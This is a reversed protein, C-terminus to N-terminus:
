NPDVKIRAEFKRYGSFEIVNRTYTKKSDLGLLVEARVPLLYREGGIKIWDYEVANESLSVPFGAPIEDHSVEIRLTRASETDIWVTGSSGAVISKKSNFDSIMSHSNAKKIKFDYVITPRGRFTERKIEKFEAKSYPSFLEGLISGFEGTSTSGGIDDYSRVAPKGNIRLLKFEEGKGSRYTLEIELKDDLQWDKNEPTRVYRSVMQMVIFNPLEEAFEAAHVRAQELISLKPTEGDPAKPPVGGVQEPDSIQPRGANKSARQITDLLFSRAGAQRLESLIKEDVKFAIGRKNVEAAIDAQPRRRAEAEKLQSLIEQVTIPAVAEQTTQAVAKSNFPLLLTLILLISTM